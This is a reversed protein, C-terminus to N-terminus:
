SCTLRTVHRRFLLMETPANVSFEMGLLCLAEFGCANVRGLSKQFTSIILSARAHDQFADKIISLLRISRTMMQPSFNQWDVVIGHEVSVLIESPYENSGNEAWTACAFVWQQFGEVEQPSTTWKSHEPTPISPM